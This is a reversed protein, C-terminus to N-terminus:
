RFGFLRAVLLGGLGGFATGLLASILVLALSCGWQFLAPSPRPKRRALEYVRSRQSGKVMAPLELTMISMEPDEVVAYRLETPHDDAALAAHLQCAVPVGFPQTPLEFTASRLAMKGYNRISPTLSPRSVM